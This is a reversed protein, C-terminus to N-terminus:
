FMFTCTLNRLRLQTFFIVFSFHISFEYCFKVIFLSRLCYFLCSCFPFSFRNQAYRLAWNRLTSGITPATISSAPGSPRFFHCMLMKKCFAPVPVQEGSLCSLNFIRAEPNLQDTSHLYSNLVAFLVMSFSFHPIKMNQLAAQKRPCAPPKETDQFGKMCVQSYM